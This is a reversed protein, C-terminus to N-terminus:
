FHVENFLQPVDCSELFEVVNDDVYQLTGGVKRCGDAYRTLQETARKLKNDYEESNVRLRLISDAM